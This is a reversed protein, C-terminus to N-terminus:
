RFHQHKYFTTQSMPMQGFTEAGTNVYVQLAKQKQEVFKNLEQQANGHSFAL